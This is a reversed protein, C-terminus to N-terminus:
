MKEYYTVETVFVTAGGVEIELPHANLMMNNGETMPMAPMYEIRKASNERILALVKDLKSDDIGILLTTNGAKLFGGITAVKTYIFGNESLVKCVQGSDKKNIIATIMKM